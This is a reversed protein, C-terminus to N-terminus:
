TSLKMMCCSVSERKPVFPANCSSIEEKMKQRISINDKIETLIRKKGMKWKGENERIEIKGNRSLDIIKGHRGRKLMSNAHKNRCTLDGSTKPPAIYLNLKSSPRSM